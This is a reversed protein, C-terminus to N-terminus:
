HKLYNLQIEDVLNNKLGLRLAEDKVQQLWEETFTELHHSDAEILVKVKSEAVLKWFNPVPYNFGNRESRFGNGNFGMPMNYKECLKILKHTLEIANKDWKAYSNMWIDPHAFLSFIGSKVAAEANEWYEDLEKKSFSKDMVLRHEKWM